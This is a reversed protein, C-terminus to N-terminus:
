SSERRFRRDFFANHITEGAALTVVRLVRPGTEGGPAIEGWFRIRGDPQIERRLPAVIVEVRWAPDSRVVASGEGCGLVTRNRGARRIPVARALPMNRKRVEVKEGNAM